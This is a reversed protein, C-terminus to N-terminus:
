PRTSPQPPFPEAPPEFDAPNACYERIARALRAAHFGDLYRHDLTAALGLIPRIEIQGGVVVPRPTVEGVLVLAPVRYYPSLPAYAHQIGFMGVSSVLASGFSQRRLGLRPLDRDLDATVWAAMRLAVRLPRPPIRELLAKSRGFEEDAGSRLRATRDALERAIQVVPKRDAHEIKVGSLERGEDATVIFFIDVSDRQHFRGRHIRGNLDPHTAYAHALAKGVLHTMTVRAGADQRVRLQYHLMAGADIELDGYIQPDTPHRWSAAAIKRWGRLRSAGM